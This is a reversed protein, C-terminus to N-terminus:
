EAEEDKGAKLEDDFQVETIAPNAFSAKCTQIGKQCAALLDAISPVQLGTPRTIVLESAELDCATRLRLGSDLFRRIKLLALNVLLEVAGAPMGYGRLRALDINFSAVIKKATFETRHFPVNGFGEKTSGKPNVHDNKVGGSEALAVGAAEVFGSVARALRYRGGSIEKKALFVGHLVCNTDYKFATQALKRIDVPGTMAGSGLEAKLKDLFSKDTGELIYPSNIRHAETLSSTFKRSQSAGKEKRMVQIFPLGALEPLLNGEDDLIAMELRNAVSQPSEVLLMDSGDPATYRAAGLDPFGTPQFRATQIPQLAAEVLLRPATAITEKLSM